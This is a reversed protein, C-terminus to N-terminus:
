LLESMAKLLNKAQRNSIESIVKRETSLVRKETWDPYILHVCEHLFTPLIDRRFDLWVKDYDTQGVCGKFRVLKVKHDEERLM